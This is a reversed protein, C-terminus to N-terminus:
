KLVLGETWFKEALGRQHKLTEERSGAFWPEDKQQVLVNLDLELGLLKAEITIRPNTDFGKPHFVLGKHSALRMIFDKPELGGITEYELGKSKCYEETEQQNKIWSGGSLVAWPAAADEHVRDNNRLKHCFEIWDLREESFTSGQVRLKGEPWEKMKPFLRLYEQKQGESMFHVGQSRKFLGQIFRGHDTAHCDCDKGTQLKHLHSSRFKCYKYDCEIISFKAGSTALEIVCQRSMGTFNVLLWHLDKGAEVLDSTVQASRVKFYKVPCKDLIAQLTLEAGGVLDEVFFDSVVILKTEKPVYFVPQM